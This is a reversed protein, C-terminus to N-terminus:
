KQCIPGKPMDNLEQGLKGEKVWQETQMMCLINWVCQAAHDEDQQGDVHQLLHRIASDAYRRVPIGKRWNDRGHIDAGREFVKAVRLLPQVPIDSPFGKGGADNRHAGTSFQEKTETSKTKYDQMIVEHIKSRLTPMHREPFMPGNQAAFLEPEIDTM